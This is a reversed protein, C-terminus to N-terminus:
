IVRNYLTGIKEIHVRLEDGQKLFIPPKRGAGVGAPTGTLILDGPELRFFSSLHSILFDIPFILQDTRAHQMTQGNLECRIELSHPDGIEDSTVIWPGLPAFTDFTKGLLWQGGPRGKQWDRASVDNGITYGFVHDLANERRIHRGGSGIVVVLEAEYDVAQSISPLEIADGPGIIASAFKNFVIPLVPTESEMEKAHDEYNKGICILKGPNDLPALFQLDSESVPSSCLGAQLLDNRDAEPCGALRQLLTDMGKGVLSSDPEALRWQCDDAVAVCPEGKFLVSAFRM